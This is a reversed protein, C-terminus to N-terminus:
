PLLLTFDADRYIPTGCQRLRIEFSGNDTGAVLIKRVAACVDADAEEAEFRVQAFALYAPNGPFKVFYRGVSSRRAVVLSGGCNNGSDVYQSNSSYDVPVTGGNAKVRVFGLVKGSQCGTTHLLQSAQYGGLRDAEIARLADPVQDLSEVDIDAGTLTRDRVDLGTLNKVDKGTVSENKIQRGTLLGGAHATSGLALFLALVAIVSTLSPRRTTTRNM